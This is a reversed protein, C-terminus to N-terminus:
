SKFDSLVHHLPFTYNGLAWISPRTCAHMVRPASVHLRRDFYMVRFLTCRMCIAVLSLVVFTCQWSCLQVKSLWARVARIGRAWRRSDRVCLDSCLFVNGFPFDMALLPFTREHPARLCIGCRLAFGVCACLVVWFDMESLFTCNCFLVHEKMLRGEVACIGGTRLTLGARACLM